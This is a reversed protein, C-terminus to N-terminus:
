LSPKPKPTAVPVVSLAHMGKTDHVLDYTVEQGNTLTKYGDMLIESFHVFVDGKPHDIFGYGRRDDFVM